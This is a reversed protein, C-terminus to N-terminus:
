SFSSSPQVWSRSGKLRSAMSSAFFSSPLQSCGRWTSRSSSFAIGGRAMTEVSMPLMLETALM